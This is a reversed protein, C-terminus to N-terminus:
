GAAGTPRATIPGFAVTIPANTAASSVYSILGVAGAHQLAATSDSASVPWSGPEAGSSAWARARVVTPGTGTVQLRVSLSLGATYTVGPLRVLAGIVTEVGGAFRVLRLTVTRDANILVKAAYFNGASVRRGEVTVYLSSGAPVASAAFSTLVDADTRTTAPLYTEVQAGAKPLQISGAGDAVSTNAATGGITWTGGTDAAGWGGTVTRDFTDVVFPSAGAPVPVPHSVSGTADDDDTVTLTVPYTGAAAFTHQATSGSGTAGDGFDWSWGTVGEDDTSGTGDFSCTLASCSATFAAVPPQNVPPATATVTHTVTGTAGQGDTVTLTVPYDGAVAYAHQPTAGTGTAGDGFDWTYGAIPGEADSSGGADFHCVLQACSSTFAATPAANGGGTPAAALRGLTVTLPANTAASSLYGIVGVAGPQQLAPTSDTASLPWTAPEATGDPWLRARLQTPGTGTVQLRFDLSSGATYSFPATWV